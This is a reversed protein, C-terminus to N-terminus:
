HWGWLMSGECPQAAEKICNACASARSEKCSLVSYTGPQNHLPSCGQVHTHTCTHPTSQGQGLAVSKVRMSTQWLGMNLDGISLEDGSQCSLGQFFTPFLCSVGNLLVSSCNLHFEKWLFLVESVLCGFGESFTPLSGNINFNNSLLAPLGLKQM